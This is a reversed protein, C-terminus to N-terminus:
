LSYLRGVKMAKDKLNPLMDKVADELSIVFKEYRFYHESLCSLQFLSDDYCFMLSNPLVMYIQIVGKKM